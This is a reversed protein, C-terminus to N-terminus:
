KQCSGIRLLVNYHMQMVEKEPGSGNDPNDFFYQILRQQRPM